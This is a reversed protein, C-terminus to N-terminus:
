TMSKLEDDALVDPYKKRLRYRSTRLSQQSIGLMGAMEKSSLSLRSLALLRVEGQSLDPYRTNLNTFFGPHAASFLTKFQQWDQETLLTFDSFRHPGENEGADPNRHNDANNALQLEFAEILNNKEKISNLYQVLKEQAQQLREEDQQHLALFNHRERRQKWYLYGTIVSM